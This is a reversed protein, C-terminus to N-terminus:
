NADGGDVVLGAPAYMTAPQAWSLNERHVNLRWELEQIQKQMAEITFSTAPPDFLIRVRLYVYSKVSNLNLDEGLFDDWTAAADEIMYGNVPGIGLQVLTTFVTNIHMMVDLDFATYDADIGLVKKTSNLISDSM